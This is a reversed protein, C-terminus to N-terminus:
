SLGWHSKGQTYFIMNNHENKHSIKVQEVQYYRDIGPCIYLRQYAHFTTLSIIPM